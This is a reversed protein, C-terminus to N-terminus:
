SRARRKRLFLVNESASRNYQVEDMLTTILPIGRGRVSDPGPFPPDAPWDFGPTHDTVRLSIHQPDISAEVRVPLARNEEAVYQIANNCAEVLALECPVLDSEACGQSKLFDIVQRAATRVRALECPVDLQLGAPSSRSPSRGM